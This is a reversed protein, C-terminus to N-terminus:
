GPLATEHGLKKWVNRKGNRAMSFVACLFYVNRERAGSAPVINRLWPLTFSFRVSLCHSPSLRWTQASFVCYFRAFYAATSGCCRVGCGVGRWFCFALTDRGIPYKMFLKRVATSQCAVKGSLQTDLFLLPADATRTHRLARTPRLCSSPPPPKACKSVSAAQQHLAARRSAAVDTRLCHLLPTCRSWPPACWAWVSCWCYSM